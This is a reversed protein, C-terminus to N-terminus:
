KRVRRLRPDILQHVVDVAFGIVLVAAGLVLVEGQVAVLDRNGVDRVLLQGVGPLNFVSEVVIAGVLLTAIQLGLVSVVSLAANRVGHRLLAQARTLGKARATRLWDQHLVELTASRVYRLLVAGEALALTVAPLVLSAVARGPDAWGDVPFGQAPLWHLRVAFLLALVLGLWLAPVAIGVQSVLSLVLGLRRRNAAAALIGGPVALAVALAMSVLVLPGTVAFKEALQGGVSAGSLPSTGFDGHLVGGVWSGYQTVLPRDTGLQHRLAAVSAPTAQTGAMVQALDGPFVRLLAFVLLSAVALSAVLLGLRRLLFVAM